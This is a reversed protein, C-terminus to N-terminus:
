AKTEAKKEEVKKSTDVIVGKAILHPVLAEGCQFEAGKKFQPHKDTAVVTVKKRIDVKQEKQNKAM